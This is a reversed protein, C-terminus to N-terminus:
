MVAYRNDGGGHCAARPVGGYVTGKELFSLRFPPSSKSTDELVLSM